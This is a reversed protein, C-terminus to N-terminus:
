AYRRKDLVRVTLFVFVASVSIYYIIDGFDFLGYSFSLYRQYVSFWEVVAKVFSLEITAALMDVLYLGILM